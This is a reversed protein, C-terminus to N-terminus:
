ESREARRHRQQRLCTHCGADFVYSHQIIPNLSLCVGDPVPISLGSYAVLLPWGGRPAKGSPFTIPSSFSITTNRFGTTVNLTGATGNQSFGAHVIDPKPPLFGAEYGQILSALQKQRCSFDSTTIVPSGDNFKFPNPLAIENFHPLSSPTACVTYANM